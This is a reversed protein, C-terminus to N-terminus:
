PPPPPHPGRTPLAARALARVGRRCKRVALIYKMGEVKEVVAAKGTIEMNDLLKKIREPQALPPPPTSSILDAARPGGFGAAHPAHACGAAAARVTVTEDFFGSEGSMLTKAGSSLAGGAANGLAVTASSLSSLGSVALNAAMDLPNRAMASPPPIFRTPARPGSAARAAGRRQARTRLNLASRQAARRRECQAPERERETRKRERM